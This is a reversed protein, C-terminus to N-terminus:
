TSTATLPGKGVFPPDLDKFMGTTMVLVSPPLCIM